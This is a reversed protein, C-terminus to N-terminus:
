RAAAKLFPSSASSRMLLFFLLFAVVIILAPVVLTAPAVLQKFKQQDVRVSIDRSLTDSLFQNSFDSKLPLGVWYQQGNRVFQLRQDESRLVAESIGSNGDLKSFETLTVEHGPSDPLTLYLLVGYLVLLAPLCLAVWFVARKALRQKGPRRSM